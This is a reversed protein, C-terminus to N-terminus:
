VRFGLGCGWCFFYRIRLCVGFCIGSAWFNAVFRLCVGFCIGSAWFNAVFHLCVGFCIGSALLKRRLTFLSRFLNRLGLLKRRTSFCALWVDIPYSFVCFVFVAVCVFLVCLFLLWVVCSVVCCFCSFELSEFITLNKVLDHVLIAVKKSLRPTTYKIPLFPCVLCVRVRGCLWLCMWVIRIAQAVFHVRNRHGISNCFTYALFYMVIPTKSVRKQLFLVYIVM